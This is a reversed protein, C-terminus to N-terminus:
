LITGDVNEEDQQQEWRICLFVACAYILLAASILCRYLELQVTDVQTSLFIGVGWALVLSPLAAVHGRGIRGHRILAAIILALGLCLLLSEGNHLTANFGVLLRRVGWAEPDTLQTWCLSTLCSYLLDLCVRVACVAIMGHCVRAVLASTNLKRYEYAFYSLFLLLLMRIPEHLFAAYSVLAVATAQTVPLRDIMTVLTTYLTYLTVTAILCIKTAGSIVRRRRYSAWELYSLLLYLVGVLLFVLLYSVFLRFFGLPLQQPTISKFALLLLTTLVSLSFCGVTLLGGRGINRWVARAYHESELAAYNFYIDQKRFACVAYAGLAFLLVPFLAEYAVTMRDRPAGIILACPLFLAWVGLCIRILLSSARRYYQGTQAQWMEDHMQGIGRLWGVILVTLVCLLVAAEPAILYLYRVTEVNEWRLLTVLRLLTALAAIPLALLMANRCVRGRLAEIREDYFM